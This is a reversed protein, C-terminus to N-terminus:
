PQRKLNANRLLRYFSVEQKEKEVQIVKAAM